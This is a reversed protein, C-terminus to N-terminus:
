RPSVGFETVDDGETTKMRSAVDDRATHHRGNPILFVWRAGHDAMHRPREIYQHRPIRGLCFYPKVTKKLGASASVTPVAPQTRVIPGVDAPWAWSNGLPRHAVPTSCQSPRVN